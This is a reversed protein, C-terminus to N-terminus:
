YRGFFAAFDSDINMSLSYKRLMNLNLNVMIKDRLEQKSTFFAGYNIVNKYNRFTETEYILCTKNSSVCELFVASVRFKFSAPYKIIILDSRAFLSNYVSDPLVYDILKVNDSKCSLRLKTKIILHCEENELYALFSEDLILEQFFERDLNSVSPVFVVKKLDDLYVSKLNIIIVDNIITNDADIRQPFGHCIRAVNKIGLSHLYEKMYNEFVIQINIKSVSRYFFLKILNNLGQLNNHNILVLRSKICSFYLAIEDYSSLVIFDYKTLDINRKIYRLKLVDYYRSLVSNGELYLEKPLSLVNSRIGLQKEYGEKFIYDLKCEQNLLEKIYIRNFNIHGYQSLPDIYLVNKM